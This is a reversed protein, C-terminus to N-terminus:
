PPAVHQEAEGQRGELTRVPLDRELAHGLADGRQDGVVLRERRRSDRELDAPALLAAVEDRHNPPQESMADQAADFAVLVGEDCLAPVHEILDVSRDEGPHEPRHTGRRGDLLVLRVRPQRGEDLLDPEVRVLRPAAGQTLRDRSPQQVIREHVVVRERGVLPVVELAGADWQERPQFLHRAEDRLQAAFSHREDIRSPVRGVHRQGLLARIAVDGQQDGLMEGVMGSGPGALRHAAVRQLIVNALQRTLVRLVPSLTRGLVARLALQGLARQTM